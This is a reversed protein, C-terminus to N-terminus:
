GAAVGVAVGAVNRAKEAEAGYWGVLADIAKRKTVLLAERDAYTEVTLRMGGGPTHRMLLSVIGLDAGARQLHSEFTKRLCKRDARGIRPDTESMRAMEPIGAKKIDRKWTGRDSARFVKEDDEARRGEKLADARAKVLAAVLDEALPLVEAKGNKTVDARLSLVRDKLNLDGWRLRACETDRLGTRLRFLYHLQRDAGAVGLLAEAQAVTLPRSPVKVEQRLPDIAEMPNSPLYEFRRLWRGFGFMASRYHNHTRASVKEVKKELFRQVKRATLEAVTDVRCGKLTADIARLVNARHEPRGKRSELYRKYGEVAEAIPTREQRAEKLQAVSIRGERM